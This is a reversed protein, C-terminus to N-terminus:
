PQRWRIDLTGDEHNFFAHSYSGLTMLWRRLADLNTSAGFISGDDNAALVIRGLGAASLERSSIRTEVCNPMSARMELVSNRLDAKNM